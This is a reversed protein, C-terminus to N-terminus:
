VHMVFFIEIQVTFEKSMFILINCDYIGLHYLKM